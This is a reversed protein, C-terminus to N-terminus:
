IALEKPIYIHQQEDWVVEMEPHAAAYAQVEAIGYANWPDIEALKVLQKTNDAKREERETVIAESLVADAKTRESTEQQVIARLEKVGIFAQTSADLARTMYAVFGVLIIIIGLATSARGLSSKVKDTMSQRWNRYGHEHGDIQKTDIRHKM